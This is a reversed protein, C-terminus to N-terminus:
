RGVPRVVMVPAKAHHVVHASVSGLLLSQIASRGRSGVVILTPMIEDAYSLIAERPDGALIKIVVECQHPHRSSVRVVEARVENLALEQIEDGEMDAALDTRIPLSYDILSNIRCVSVVHVRDGEAVLHTFVFELAYSSHESDDIAVLIQKSTPTSMSDSRNVLRLRPCPPHRIRLLIVSISCLSAAIKTVSVIPPKRGDDMGIAEMDMTVVILGVELRPYSVMRRTRQM